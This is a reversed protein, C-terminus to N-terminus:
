RRTTSTTMADLNAMDRKRRLLPILMPVQKRYQQYLSGFSRLLDHEEFALGILIYITMGTAFILHGVSMRPTVWFSILLGLMMPHRVIKYLLGQKFELPMYERHILYLYVQRLGAFDFHNVLFTSLIVILWGIGYLTMLLVYIPNGPLIWLYGEIPRWQWFLLLLCLSVSFVFISRETSEPILQTWRKKFGQRAMLSHQIGFLAILALDIVLSVSPNANPASDITKRFYFNGIFGIGYLV